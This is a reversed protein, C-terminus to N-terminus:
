KFKKINRENIFVYRYIQENSDQTKELDERLKLVEQVKLEYEVM